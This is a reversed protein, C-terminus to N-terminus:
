SRWRGGAANKVVSWVDEWSKMEGRAAKGLVIQLGVERTGSRDPLLEEHREQIWTPSSSFPMTPLFTTRRNVFESDLLYTQSDVVLTQPPSTSLDVELEPMEATQTLSLQVDCARCCVLLVFNSHSSQLLLFSLSPVCLDPLLLEVTSKRVKRANVGSEGVVDLVLTEELVTRFDKPRYVLQRSSTTEIETKRLPQLTEIDPIPTSPKGEMIEFISLIRSETSGELGGSVPDFIGTNTLFSPM